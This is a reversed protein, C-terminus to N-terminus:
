KKEKTFWEKWTTAALAERAPRQRRVRPRLRKGDPKEFQSRAARTVADDPDTILEILDGIFQKDDKM